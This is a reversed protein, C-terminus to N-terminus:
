KPRYGYGLMQCSYHISYFDLLGSLLQLLIDRQPGVQERPNILPFKVTKRYVLFDPISGAMRAIWSGINKLQLYTM